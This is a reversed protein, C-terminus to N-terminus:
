MLIPDREAARCAIGVVAPIVSGAKYANFTSLSVGLFDKAEQNSMRLSKQWDILEARGFPRQEAALKQLHVADIALDGDPDGWAIAAGHEAVRATNFTEPNRLPALIDGGTAIWGALNM